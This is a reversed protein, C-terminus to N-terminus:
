KGVKSMAKKHAMSFSMGGKMLKKMMSIHKTSHHNAHKTLKAKQKADM